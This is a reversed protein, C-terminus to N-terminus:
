VQGGVAGLTRREDALWESIKAELRAPSVPKTMYDDMGADLCRERDGELAHATLGVIPTRPLGEADEAWRIARTAEHGNMEPMSVDMLILAPRHKRWAEVAERGNEALTFKRGMGGLIQEFVLQNVENDEAVLIEAGGTEPVPAVVAERQRKVKPGLTYSIVPALKAPETGAEDKSRWGREQMGALVEEITGRLLASRTPKTLIAEAGSSKLEQLAITDDVSTLLVVGIRDLLGGARMERLVQAGNMRPMQYDLVMLDVGAGLREAEEIFALAVAGSEVACCDLKWNRMQEALINRNIGNDDVILIRAGEMDTPVRAPKPDGGQHAALPLRFHFSSGEGIKSTAGVSGGMLDVLRSAIALGLGTGEHRRTSSSDVQSFKEFVSALKEEPIGIGTDIVQFLIQDGDRSVDILVHGKDTFKVANGALNTLIQRIRGMDGVVWGPLSPDVHVILELDKESARSSVLTAVDEVTEALNFPAAELHAHGADIKSFDLIDNIITLLANGSKLIVDNYTRQRADLETSAMLESMGLVGNMPTRIEHSMNALFESKARDASKADELAKRLRALADRISREMPLFILLLIGAAFAVLVVAIVNITLKVRNALERNFQRLTASLQDLAPEVLLHTVGTLYRGVKAREGPAAESAEGVQDRFEELMAVPTRPGYPTGVILREQMEPDLQAWIAEIKGSILELQRAHVELAKEAWDPNEVTPDSMQLAIRTTAGTTEAAEAVLAAFSTANSFRANTVHSGLIFFIGPIILAGMVAIYRLRLGRVAAAITDRAERETGASRTGAHMRWVQMVALCALILIGSFLAVLGPSAGGDQTVLAPWGAMVDEYNGM